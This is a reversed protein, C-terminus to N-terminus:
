RVGRVLSDVTISRPMTRTQNNNSSKYCSCFLVASIQQKVNKRFDAVLFALLIEETCFALWGFGYSVWFFITKPVDPWGSWYLTSLPNLVVIRLVSMLLCTMCIMLIRISDKESTTGAMSNSKDLFSTFNMILIKHLHDTTSEGM